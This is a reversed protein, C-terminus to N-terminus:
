MCKDLVLFNGGKGGGIGKTVTTKCGGVSLGSALGCRLPPSGGLVAALVFIGLCLPTSAGSPGSLSEESTQAQLVPGPFRSPIQLICGLGLFLSMQGRVSFGLQGWCGPAASSQLSCPLSPQPLQSGVGESGSPGPDEDWQEQWRVGM